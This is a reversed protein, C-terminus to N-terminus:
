MQCSWTQYKLGPGSAEQFQGKFSSFLSAMLAVSHSSVRILISYRQNLTQLTDNAAFIQFWLEDNILSQSSASTVELPACLDDALEGLRASLVQQRAVSDEFEPLANQAIAQMARELEKALSRLLQLHETAKSNRDQAGATM